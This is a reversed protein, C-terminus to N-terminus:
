IYIYKLFFGVTLSTNSPNIKYCSSLRHITNIISYPYMEFFEAQIEMSRLIKKRITSPIM